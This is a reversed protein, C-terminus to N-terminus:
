FKIESLQFISAKLVQWCINVTHETPNFNSSLQAYPHIYNRFDRLVHSFKKVDLDLHNVEHAVNILDNLTWEHFSKVKDLEDRPASKAMNYNKPYKNAYGLLIGELTSGILFIAALPIKNKICNHIEDLRLKLIIILASELKLKELPIEKFEKKLFTDEKDTEIVCQQVPKNEVFKKIAINKNERIVQWGDFALYKNFDNIYFDVGNKDEIFNVPSFV